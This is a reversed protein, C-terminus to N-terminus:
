ECSSCFLDAAFYSLITFRLFTKMFIKCRLVTIVDREAKVIGTIKDCRVISSLWHQQGSYKTKWFCHWNQLIKATVNKRLSLSYKTILHQPCWSTLATKWESPRDRSHASDQFLLLVVESFIGPLASSIERSMFSINKYLCEKAKFKILNYQIINYYM